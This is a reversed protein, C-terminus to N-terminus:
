WSVVHIHTGLIGLTVSGSGHTPHRLIHAWVELHTSPIRRLANVLGGLFFNFIIVKLPHCLDGLMLWGYFLGYTTWSLCQTEKTEILTCSGGDMHLHDVFQFIILM